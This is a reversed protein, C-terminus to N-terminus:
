HENTKQNRNIKTQRPTMKQLNKKGYASGLGRGAGGRCLASGGRGGALGAAGNDLNVVAQIAAVVPLYFVLLAVFAAWMALNRVVRQWHRMGLNSWVIEDTGPAPQVRWACEDHSHMGAAAATAASREKFTVFAAPAYAGESAAAADQV